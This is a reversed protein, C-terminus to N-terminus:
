LSLAECIRHLIQCGFLEAGRLTTPLTTLFSEEKAAEGTAKSAEGTAKSAEATAYGDNIVIVIVVATAAENRRLRARRRNRSRLMRPLNIKVQLALTQPLMPEPRKSM